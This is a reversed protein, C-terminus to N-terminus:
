NPRICIKNINQNLWGGWWSFTSNAIINHKCTGMLVIDKYSEKGKNYDIFYAKNLIQKLNNKCWPIDDSFVFFVPNPILKKIENISNLYYNLGIFKLVNAKNTIYDGRRVHISVSTSTQILSLIKQNREDLRKKPTFEKRIIDEIEKFYREDAWYGQIYSDNKASLYSPNFNYPYGQTVIHKNFQIGYREDLLYLLRNIINNQMIGLKRLNEATAIDASINFVDLEYSRQTNFLANTFHLKLSTKHKIAIAKGFAYQFMQNGLGGTLNVIIM